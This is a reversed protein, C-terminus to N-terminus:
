PSKNPRSICSFSYFVHFSTSLFYELLCFLIQDSQWVVFSLSTGLILHQNWARDNLAVPSPVFMFLNFKIWLKCLEFYMCCCISSFVALTSDLKQNLSVKYQFYLLFLLPLSWFSEKTRGMEMQTSMCCVGFVFCVFFGVRKFLFYIWLYVQSM